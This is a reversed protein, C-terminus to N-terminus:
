EIEKLFLILKFADNGNLYYSLLRKERVFGLSQYLHLAAKNTVETELVVEDAEQEEMAQVTKEVLIRGLGNGRYKPLVALMAVYGSKCFIQDKERDTDSQIIPDRVKKPELKSVACGIYEGTPPYYALFTLEPWNDVFYRYTFIPYPESLEAKIMDIILELHHEGEYHKYEIKSIDIKVPDEM